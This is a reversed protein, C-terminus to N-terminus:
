RLPELSVLDATYVETYRVDGVLDSPSKSEKTTTMRVPLGHEDLWWEVVTHEWYEDDDAIRMRVHVTPVPTGEVTVTARDLVEWEPLWLQDDIRCALPVVDRAAGDSPVLLVERDCRLEQRQGVGYFEHYSAGTPQLEIGEETVCLRFEESREKLLDWRLLVGCGDPTVTLTTEAPYAHETGGLSDITEKGTTVYRYVGPTPTTALPVPTTVAVSPAVTPPVTTQERFREVAEDADVTRATDNLWIRSVVVAGCVLVGVVATM